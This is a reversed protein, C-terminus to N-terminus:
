GSARMVELIASFEEGGHGADVARRMLDGVTELHAMDLGAARSDGLVKEFSAAYVELTAGLGGTHVGDRAMRGLTAIEHAAVGSTLYPLAIDDTFTEVPIDMKRCMAAAHLFGVYLHYQLALVGKDVTAAAGLTESILLVRGALAELHPRCRAFVDKRGATVITATGNRVDDPYDLIQGELYAIGHDAAWRALEHSQAVSMTTLQVLTKGKLGAAAKDNALAAMTAAHDLLCVIAVEAAAAAEDVTAAAYAGAQSLAEAKAPTRNWVTVAFGKALLTEALASGMSGLGFVSVTRRDSDTM